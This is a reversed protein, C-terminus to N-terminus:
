HRNEGSALGTKCNKKARSCVRKLKRASTFFFCLEGAIVASTPIPSVAWATSNM